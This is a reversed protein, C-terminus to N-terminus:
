AAELHKDLDLQNLRLVEQIMEESVSPFSELFDDVNGGSKLWSYFDEVRIRTGFFCVAGSMRDPDQWLLKRYTKQAKAEM